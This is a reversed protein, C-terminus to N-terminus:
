RDSHPSVRRSALELVIRKDDIGSTNSSQTTRSLSSTLQSLFSLTLNDLRSIAEDMFFHLYIEIYNFSKTTLPYLAVLTRSEEIKSQVKRRDIVTSKDDWSNATDSRTSMMTSTLLGEENIQGFCTNHMPNRPETNEM